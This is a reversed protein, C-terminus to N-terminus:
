NVIHQANVYELHWITVMVQPTSAERKHNHEHAHEHSPENNVVVPSSTFIKEPKPKHYIHFGTIVEGLLGISALILKLYSEVPWRKLPGCPLCICPMTVSSKFGVLSNKKYPSKTKSVAFRIATVFSWWVAFIIFFGGPM